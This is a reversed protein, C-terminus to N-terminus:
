VIKICLVPLRYILSTRVKDFTNLDNRGWLERAQATFTFFLKSLDNPTDVSPVASPNLIFHTPDLTIVKKEAIQNQLKSLFEPRVETPAGYGGSHMPKM